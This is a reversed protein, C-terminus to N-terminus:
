NRSISMVTDIIVVFKSPIPAWGPAIQIEFQVWCIIVSFALATFTHCYCPTKSIKSRFISDADFKFLPKEYPKGGLGLHISVIVDAVNSLRLIM